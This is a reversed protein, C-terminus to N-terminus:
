EAENQEKDYEELMGLFLNKTTAKKWFTATFVNIVTEDFRVVTDLSVRKFPVLEGGDNVITEADDKHCKIAPVLKGKKCLAYANRAKGGREVPFHGMKKIWRGVTVRDGKKLGDNNLGM